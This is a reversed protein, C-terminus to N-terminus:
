NHPDLEVDLRSGLHIRDKEMRSRYALIEVGRGAALRLAEGFRPDTRDNPSVAEADERQLLFLLSARYGEGLAQVLHLLHRRGRETVADPFLARGDEVLTCSKVELLCRRRGSSLLFDFRSNGYGRESFVRSYQSFEPLARSNLAVSVLRNPVRTDVSILREGTDVAVVDYRTKRGDETMERVRLRVGPRLLETMRGPNPLFCPVEEGRLKAIVLFRNPGRLFIADRTPGVEIAIM